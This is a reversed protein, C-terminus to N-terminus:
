PARRSGCGKRKSHLAIAEGKRVTKSDGMVVRWEWVDRLSARVISYKIGRHQDEMETRDM